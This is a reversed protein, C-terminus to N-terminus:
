LLRCVLYALSQLESTHEESRRGAAAEPMPHHEVNGGGHRFQRLAGAIELGALRRGAGDLAAGIEAGGAIAAWARRLAVGRVMIVEHQKRHVGGLEAGVGAGRGGEDAEVQMEMRQRLGLDDGGVPMLALPQGVGARFEESFKAGAAYAEDRAAMQWLRRM